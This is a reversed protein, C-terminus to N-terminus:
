NLILNWQTFTSVSTLRTGDRKWTLATITYLNPITKPPAEDWMEKRPSWNYM